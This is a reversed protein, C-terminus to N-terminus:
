EKIPKNRSFFVIGKGSEIHFGVWKDFYPKGRLKKIRLRRTQGRRFEQLQTEIVCDAVEEIKTLDSKEIGTGSAVCLKGNNAKVKVAISNLFNLVYNVRLDVLLPSISDFYVDTGPGTESLCKSIVLGLGTLDTHSSVGFKEESTEGGIASYADVFVIRANEFGEKMGISTMSERIKSPSETNTIYVSQGLTSHDIALTELLVSKGAGSNGTVLAFCTQPLGGSTIQNFYGFSQPYTKRRRRELAAVTVTGAVLALAVLESQHPVPLNVTSTGSANVNLTVNFQSFLYAVSLTYNNMPLGNFSATGDYASVAQTLMRGNKLLTVKAGPLPIGGMTLRLTKDFVPVRVVSTTGGRSDNLPSFSQVGSWSVTLNLTGVIGTDPLAFTAWGSSNTVGSWTRLQQSLISVTANALGKGSSDQVNIKVPYFPSVYITYTFDYIGGSQDSIELNVKWSGTGLTTDFSYSNTYQSIPQQTPQIRSSTGNKATIIAIANNLRYTGIPDTVNARFHVPVMSTLDETQILNTKQSQQDLFTIAVQLPNVAPITLSTPTSPDDYALYPTGSNVDVRVSLVIASGKQFEYDIIGVGVTFPLFRTGLVAMSQISAGPVPVQEGTSKLEALSFDLNSLVGLTSRLYLTVAIAGTIRLNEGLIPSLKFSLTGSANETKNGGWNPVANLIRANNVSHAYLVIYNTTSAQSWVSATPTIIILLALFPLLFRPRTLSM